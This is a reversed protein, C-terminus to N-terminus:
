NLMRKTSSLAPLQFTLVILLWITGHASRPPNRLGSKWKKPLWEGWSDSFSGRRGWKWQMLVSITDEGVKSAWPPFLDFLKMLNHRHLCACRPWFYHRKFNGDPFWFYIIWSKCIKKLTQEGWQEWNTLEMNLSTEALQATGTSMGQVRTQAAELCLM